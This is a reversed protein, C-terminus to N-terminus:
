GRNLGDELWEAFRRADELGYQRALAEETLFMERAIRSTVLRYDNESLSDLHERVRRKLLSDHIGSSVAGHDWAMLGSIAAKLEEYEM